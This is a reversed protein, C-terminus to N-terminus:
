SAAALGMRQLENMTVAIARALEQGKKWSDDHAGKLPLNIIRREPEGPNDNGKWRALVPRMADQQSADVLEDDESRALVALRGNTWGCEVGDEGEVCAPSVRDWLSEESGFAGENIEQYASISRHTDRLLRINYIGAIGLIAVPSDYDDDDNNDVNGGEGEGEGGREGREGKECGRAVLSRMVAQFAMTAGCSHGVLVYRGGFGFRRQLFSLAARVDRIHAPHRADRLEAVPTM